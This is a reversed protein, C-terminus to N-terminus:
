LSFSKNSEVGLQQELKKLQTDFTKSIVKLSLKSGETLLEQLLMTRFSHPHTNGNKDDKLFALLLHIANKDDSEKSFITNFNSARLRGTEGHRHFFSFLILHSYRCYEIVARNVKSILINAQESKSDSSSWFLEDSQSLQEETSTAKSEIEKEVANQVVMQGSPIVKMKQSNDELGALETFHCSSPLNKLGKAITVHTTWHINHQNNVTIIHREPLDQFPYTAEGNELTHLNVKFAHALYNLDLHTAWVFDHTIVQMAKLIPSDSLPETLPTIDKPAVGEGYLLSIFLPVLVLAEHEAVVKSRDIQALAKKIAPYKAFENYGPNVNNDYFLEAFKCYNSTAVLLRYEDEVTTRACVQRLEELQVKYTIRRLSRHLDELLRDDPHDFDFACIADYSHSLSPDLQVWQDFMSRQNIVKEEQIIDILGIAFAYFGCNGQGPNDIAREEFKIQSGLTSANKVVNLAKGAFYILRTLM